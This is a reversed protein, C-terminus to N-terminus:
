GAHYGGDNRWYFTRELSDAPFYVFIRALGNLIRVNWISRARLHGHEASGAVSQIYILCIFRFVTAIENNEM